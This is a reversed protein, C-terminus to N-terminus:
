DSINIVANKVNADPVSVPVTISQIYQILKLEEIYSLLEPTRMFWEGRLRTAEFRSHIERETKSTGPTTGLLVPEFPLSTRIDRMRETMNASMGIKIPFDALECTIFYIVREVRWPRTRIYRNLAVKALDLQHERYRTRKFTSGERITWTRRKPDLYLRPGLWKQPM